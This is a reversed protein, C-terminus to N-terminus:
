KKKTKTTRKKRKKNVKKGEVFRLLRLYNELSIETRGSLWNCISSNSVGCCKSMESKTIGSKEMLKHLAVLASQYDYLVTEKEISDLNGIKGAMEVFVDEIRQDVGIERLKM